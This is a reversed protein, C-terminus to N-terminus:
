FRAPDRRFYGVAFTVAAVLLAVLAAQVEGPADALFPVQGVLWALLVAVASGYSAATVKPSVRAANTPSQGM